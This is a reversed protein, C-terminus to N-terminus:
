FKGKGIKTPTTPPFPYKFDFDDKLEDGEEENELAYSELTKLYNRDQLRKTFNQKNSNLSKPNSNDVFDDVLSKM